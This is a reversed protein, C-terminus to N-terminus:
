TRDMTLETEAEAIRIDCEKIKDRIGALETEFPEAEKKAAAKLDSQELLIQRALASRKATLQDIKEQLAKKEKGKFLGLGAKESEAASIEESIKDREAMSPVPADAKKMIADIKAQLESADSELAEKDSKAAALKDELEKKREPHEAWYADIREKRAEEEKRRKEEQKKKLDALKKDRKETWEKIKNRRYAKAEATLSKDPYYGSSYASAQFKYCQSNIVAEQIIKMNNFIQNITQETEAATMAIELADLCADSKDMWTKYAYENKDSKDPGFAKDAEDSASVACSNIKVAIKNEFAEVDGFDFIKARLMLDAKVTLYDNLYAKRIDQANKASPYKAFSNAHLSIMAFAIDLFESSVRKRMAEKDDEASFEVAKIWCEVAEKVRSNAGTSQWGASKGKYFWAEPHNPDMELIKNAYEEAQQNNNSESASKCLSLCNAIQAEFNPRAPAVPAAAPVAGGNMEAIKERMREASHETGCVECVAVGGAGVSLKGGCIDCGIAM